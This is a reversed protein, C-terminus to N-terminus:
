HTAREKADHLRGAVLALRESKGALEEVPQGPILRGAEHEVDMHSLHVPEVELLSEGDRDDEMRPHRQTTSVATAM